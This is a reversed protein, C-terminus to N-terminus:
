APSKTSSQLFKTMTLVTGCDGSAGYEVEDMYHHIIFGGLGGSGGRRHFEDMSTVQTHEESIGVGHDIISIRLSADSRSLRIFFACSDQVSRDGCKVHDPLDPSVGRHKYAHRVVNACAEDVAMEIQSTQEENFGMDEAICTVFRRLVSLIRSDCACRLEFEVDQSETGPEAADM